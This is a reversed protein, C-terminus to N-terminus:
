IIHTSINFALAHSRQHGGTSCHNGSGVVERDDAGNAADIRIDLPDTTDRDEIAFRFMGKGLTKPHL